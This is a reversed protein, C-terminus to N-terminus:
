PKEGLKLRQDIRDIIRPCDWIGDVVFHAGADLFKKEIRSTQERLCAPDAGEFDKPSMGLLGSTNLVGITWMGANLGEEVDRVTHGIRVLSELPYVELNVANQYCMWPLPRGGPVDSSCVVTDPSYGKERAAELLIASSEYSLSTTSGIRLGRERFQAVAETLGPILDAHDSIQLPMLMEVKRYLRDLDYASPEAGYVDRWKASVSESQLLCLLHDACSLGIGSRVEDATIQVWSEGFAEIFPQISAFGGFDVAVGSWGLIVGRVPGHFPKKRSFVEIKRSDM